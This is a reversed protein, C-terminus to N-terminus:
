WTPHCCCACNSPYFVGGICLNLPQSQTPHCWHSSLVHSEKGTQCALSLPGCCLCAGGGLFFGWGATLESSDQSIYHATGAAHWWGAWMQCEYTINSSWSHCKGVVLYRPKLLGPKRRSAEEVREISATTRACILQSCKRPHRNSTEEPCLMNSCLFSRLTQKCKM